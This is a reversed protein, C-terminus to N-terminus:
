PQVGLRDHEAELRGARLEERRDTAVAALQLRQVRLGPRDLPPDGLRGTARALALLRFRRDFARPRSVFAVGDSSTELSDSPSSEASSVVARRGHLGLSCDSRPTATRPAPTTDDGLWGSGSLM